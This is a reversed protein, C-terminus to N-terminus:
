SCTKMLKRMLLARCESVRWSTEVTEMHVGPMEGLQVRFGGQDGQGLAERGTQALSFLHYAKWFLSQVKLGALTLSLWSVGLSELLLQGVKKNRDPIESNKRM